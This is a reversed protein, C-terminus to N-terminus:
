EGQNYFLLSEASPIVTQPKRLNGRHLGAEWIRVPIPPVVTTFVPSSFNDLAGYPIRRCAILQLRM